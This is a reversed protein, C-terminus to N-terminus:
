RPGRRRRPPPAPAPWPSAGRHQLVFFSPTALWAPGVAAASYGLLLRDTGDLSVLPDRLWSTPPLQRFAGYDLMLSASPHAFREKRTLSRVAFHGFTRVAGGRDTMAEIPGDIGTQELRVNWGRVGDDDPAFVKAFTTWSVREAIPPLGLSVGFFLTPGDLPVLEFSFGTSFLDFLDDCSMRRLTEISPTTPSM